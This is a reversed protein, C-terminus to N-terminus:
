APQKRNIISIKLDELDTMAAAPGFNTRVIEFDILEAGAQKIVFEELKKKAATSSKAEIVQSGAMRVVFDFSFRM